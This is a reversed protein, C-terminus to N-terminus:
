QHAAKAWAWAWAWAWARAWGRVRGPGKGGEDGQKVGKVGRREQEQGPAEHERPAHGLPQLAGWPSHTDLRQWHAGPKVPAGAAASCHGGGREKRGGKAWVVVSVSVSM